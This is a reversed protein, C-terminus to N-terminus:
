PTRSQTKGNPKAEDTERRISFSSTSELDNKDRAVIVVHNQGKELPLDTNFSVPDRAPADAPFTRYFVKKDNVMIWMDKMGSDDTATGQVSTKEGRLVLETAKPPGVTLKPASMRVVEVGEGSPSHGSLSVKAAEIWGLRGDPLAVQVFPGLKGKQALTAGAKLQALTLTKDSAGAYVAAPATVAVNGSASAVPERRPGTPLELKETVYDGFTADAVTLRVDFVAKPFGDKVQFRFKGEASKGPALPDFKVRGKDLNLSEGELNKLLAVPDPSDGPGLNTVTVSMDVWEGMEAIGDGNGGAANDLIQWSYAFSPHPLPKVALKAPISQFSPEDGRQLDVSLSTVSAPWAKPMKMPVSFSRTQGPKVRGFAFEIGDFLPEDSKSIGRLRTVDTTGKNTVNVTMKLDDGANVATVAGKEGPTFEVATALKPAGADHGATWDIGLQRFQEAIHQDQEAQAKSVIAPAGSLMKKRSPSGDVKLIQTALQVEFDKSLDGAKKYEPDVDDDDNGAEDKAGDDKDKDKAEPGNKPKDHGEKPNLPTYKGAPKAEDAEIFRMSLAPKDHRAIGSGDNDFHGGLDTERFKHSEGTLDVHDAAIKVPTTDPRGTSEWSGSSSPSTSIRSR